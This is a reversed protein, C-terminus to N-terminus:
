DSDDDDKKSKKKKEKKEKKKKPKEEEECDYEEAPGDFIVRSGKVTRGYLMTYGCGPVLERGEPLEFYSGAEVRLGVKRNSLPYVTYRLDHDFTPSKHEEIAFKAPVMYLGGWLSNPRFINNSADPKIKTILQLALDTMDNFTGGSDEQGQVADALIEALLKGHADPHSDCQRHFTAVVDGDEDEVRTLSSTGM